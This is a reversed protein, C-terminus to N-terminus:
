FPAWACSVGREVGPEAVAAPNNIALGVPLRGAEGPISSEIGGIHSIIPGKDDAPIILNLKGWESPHGRLSM